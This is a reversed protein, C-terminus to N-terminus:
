PHQAIQAYKLRTLEAHLNDLFRRFSSRWALTQAAKNNSDHMAALNGNSATRSNIEITDEIVAVLEGTKANALVARITVQGIGSNNTQTGVTSAGSDKYRMSYPMFDILSFQIALVDLGGRDVPVFEGKERFIKNSFDDLQQCIADMEKWTSENWNAAMKKDTSATIKLKDFQTSFIISKNFDKFAAANKVLLKDIKKTEIYGLDSQEISKVTLNETAPQSSCGAVMITVIILFVMRM